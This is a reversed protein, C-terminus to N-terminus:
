KIHRLKNIMELSDWDSAGTIEAIKEGQENFIFTTPLAYVNLDSFAGTYRIFDLKFNTQTKFEKLEKESQESVLLLVYNEKELVQKLRELSPMEEICPRCWTAWFNLLVKKEKFDALSIENGELNIYRGGISREKGLIIENTDISKKEVSNCSSLCLSVMIFISFLARM